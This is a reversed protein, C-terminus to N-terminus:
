FECSGDDVNADPNYNSALPDVCGAIPGLYFTQVAEYGTPITFNLYEAGNSVDTITMVADNWGDGYADNFTAVIEM